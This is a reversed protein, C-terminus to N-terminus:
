AAAETILSSVEAGPFALKALVIKDIMAPPCDKLRMVEPGTFLPLGMIAAREIIEDPAPSASCVIIDQGARTQKVVFTIEPEVVPAPPPVVPVEDFLELNLSDLGSM